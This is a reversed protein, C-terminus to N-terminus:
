LNSGGSRKRDLSGGRVVEKRLMVKKKRLCTVDSLLLNEDLWILEYELV